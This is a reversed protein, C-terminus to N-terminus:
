FLRRRHSGSPLAFDQFAVSFSQYVPWLGRSRFSVLTEFSGKLFRSCIYFYPEPRCSVRVGHREHLYASNASPGSEQSEEEDKAGVRRRPRYVCNTNVHWGERQLMVPLRRYGYRIRTSAVDQLRVRLETLPDRRSQYRNEHGRPRKRIGM